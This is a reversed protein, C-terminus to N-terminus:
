PEYLKSGHYFKTKLVSFYICCVYFDSMKWFSFFNASYTNVQMMNLIKTLKEGGM